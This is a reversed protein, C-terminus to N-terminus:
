APSFMLTTDYADWTTPGDEGVPVRIRMWAVVDSPHATLSDLDRAYYQGEPTSLLLQWEEHEPLREPQRFLGPYKYRLYELAYEEEEDPRVGDIAAYFGEAYTARLDQFSAEVTRAKTTNHYGAGAGGRLSHAAAVHNRSTHKKM